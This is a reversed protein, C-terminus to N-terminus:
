IIEVDHPSVWVFVCLLFWFGWFVFASQLVVQGALILFFVSKLKGLPWHPPLSELLNLSSDGGIVKGDATTHIANRVTSCAHDLM